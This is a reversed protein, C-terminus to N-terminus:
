KKIKKITKYAQYWIKNLPIEFTGPRKIIEGGFGMKFRTIGPWKIEDIGYFDYYKLGAAQADQIAQWQLLHPAMVKRYEHDSGGHLYTMTNAFAIIMNAAIIKGEYEALYLRTNEQALMLQYYDKPHLRIGQRSATKKIMAYFKDLDAMDESVRVTVGKKTALRINYRTKSKFSNLLEDPSESEKLNLILTQSPQVNKVKKFHSFDETRPEFRWFVSNARAAIKKIEKHFTNFYVDSSFEPGCPSFLYTKGVALPYEILQLCAKDEIALRHVSRGYQHQFEGWDWSQLFSGGQSADPSAPGGQKAVLRDWDQKNKIEKVDM